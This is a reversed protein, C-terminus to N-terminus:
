EMQFSAISAENKERTTGKKSHPLGEPHVSFCMESRKKQEFKVKQDKALHTLTKKNTKLGKTGSFDLTPKRRFIKMPLKLYRTVTMELM